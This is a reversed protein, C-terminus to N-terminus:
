EGPLYNATQLTIAYLLSSNNTSKKQGFRTQAGM